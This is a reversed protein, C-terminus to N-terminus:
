HTCTALEEPEEGAQVIVLWSNGSQKRETIEGPSYLKGTTQDTGTGDPHLLLVCGEEPEVAQTLKAELQRL